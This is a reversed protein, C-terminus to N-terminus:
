VFAFQRPRVVQYAVLKRFGGKRVPKAQNKYSM